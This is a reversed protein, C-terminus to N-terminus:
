LASERMKNLLYCSLLIWSSWNVRIHSSGCTHSHQCSSQSAGTNVSKPPHISYEPFSVTNSVNTPHSNEEQVTCTITLNRQITYLKNNMVVFGDSLSNPGIDVNNAKFFYKLKCNHIKPTSTSSSSCTFLDFGNYDNKTIEPLTPLGLVFVRICIRQTQYLDHWQVFYVGGNSPALSSIYITIITFGNQRSPSRNVRTRNKYSLSYFTTKGHSNMSMISTRHCNESFLGLLVNDITHKNAITIKLREGVPIEKEEIEQCESFSDTCAHRCNCVPVLLSFVVVGSVSIKKVAM